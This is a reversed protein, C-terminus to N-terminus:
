DVKEWSTMTFRKRTKKELWYERINGKAIEHHLSSSLDSVVKKDGTFVEWPADAIHGTYRYHARHQNTRAWHQKAESDMKVNLKGWRDLDKYAKDKDQHGKVNRDDM